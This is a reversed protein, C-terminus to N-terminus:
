GGLVNKREEFGETTMEGRAYRERLIDLPEQATDGPVAGRMGGSILRRVVYVIGVVVLGWFLVMFIIEYWGMGGFGHGYGGMM